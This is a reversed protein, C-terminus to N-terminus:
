RSNGAAHSLPRLIRGVLGSYLGEAILFLRTWIPNVPVTYTRHPRTAGGWKEKFQVLTKQGSPSSMMNFCEAGQEKAWRISESFLLDAPRSASHNLSVGGHLYYAIVGDLAVVIFGAVEGKARAVLFRVKPTTQALCLLGKFYLENYRLSGRHRVITSRYIDFVARADTNPDACAVTLGWRLAKRINRRVASPLGDLQWRGLDLIATEPTEAYSFPLSEYAPFASTPVRLAHVRARAARLSLLLDVSPARGSITGGRPFGVYGIRFPGLRFVTISMAETSPKSPSWVYLTSTPFSEEILQTWRRSHFLSGQRLCEQEWFSPPVESSRM